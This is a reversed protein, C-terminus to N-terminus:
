RGGGFLEGFPDAHRDPQGSAANQAPQVTSETANSEEGSLLLPLFARVGLCAEHSGTRIFGTFVLELPLRFAILIWRGKLGCPKRGQGARNGFPDLDGFPDAHRNKQATRAQEAVFHVRSTSQVHCDTIM